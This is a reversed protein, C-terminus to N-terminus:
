FIGCLSPARSWFAGWGSFILFIGLGWFFGARGALLGLVWLPGKLGSFCPRFCGAVISSLHGVRFSFPTQFRALQPIWFPWLLFNKRSIGPFPYIGPALYLFCDGGIGFLKGPFSKLFTEKRAGPTWFRKEKRSHPNGKKSLFTGKLLQTQVM